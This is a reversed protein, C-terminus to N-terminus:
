ISRRRFGELSQMIRQRTMDHKVTYYAYEREHSALERAIVRLEGASYHKYGRTTDTLVPEPILDEAIWRKFTLESKGLAHAAEPVTYTEVVVPHDMEGAIVERQTGPALLGGSLKSPALPNDKRYSERAARRQREAYDTDTAYLKRRAENRDETAKAGPHAGRSGSGARSRGGQSHGKGTEM